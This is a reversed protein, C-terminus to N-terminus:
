RLGDREIKPLSQDGSAVPGDYSMLMELQEATLRGFDDPLDKRVPSSSQARAELFAKFRRVLGNDGFRHSSIVTM